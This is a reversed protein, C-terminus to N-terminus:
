RIVVVQEEGPASQVQGSDTGKWALVEVHSGEGDQGSPTAWAIRGSGISFGPLAQSAMLPNGLDLTGTEPDVRYLSLRGITPDAEDAIWIAVHTGTEDWRADWDRIAGTDIVQLPAPPGPSPSSPAASDEPSAAPEV